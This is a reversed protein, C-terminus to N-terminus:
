QDIFTGTDSHVIPIPGSAGKQASVCLSQLSEGTRQKVLEKNTKKNCRNHGFNVEEETNQGGFEVSKIGWFFKEIASFCQFLFYFHVQLKAM